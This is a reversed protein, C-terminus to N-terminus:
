AWWGFGHDLRSLIKERETEYDPYEAEYHGSEERKLARYEIALKVLDLQVRKRRALDDGQLDDGFRLAIEAQADELYIQLAEDSLDTQVFAKLEELTLPSM